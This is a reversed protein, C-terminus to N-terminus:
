PLRIGLGRQCLWLGEYLGSPGNTTTDFFWLLPMPNSYWCPLLPCAKSGFFNTRSPKSSFQGLWMAAFAINPQTTVALYMLCGVLYQYQSVLDNNLLDDQMQSKSATTPLPMQVIKCQSLNWEDLLDAIYLHSSLWLKRSHRDRVIVMSLFKTCPGLDIIRLRQSLLTLFWKYLLPSNTVGLGDDVHIPVILFLLSGSAMFSVTIWLAILLALPLSSISSSCIFSMHLNVFDM